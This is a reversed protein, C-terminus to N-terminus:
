ALPPARGLFAPSYVGAAPTLGPVANVVTFVIPKSLLVSGCDANLEPSCVVACVQCDNDLVAHAASIHMYWAGSIFFAAALCAARRFEQYKMAM